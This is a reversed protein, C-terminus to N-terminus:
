ACAVNPRVPRAQHRARNQLPGKQLISFYLVYDQALLAERFGDFIEFPQEAVCPQPLADEKQPPLRSALLKATIM